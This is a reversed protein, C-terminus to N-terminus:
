EEVNAFDTLTSAEADQPPAVHEFLFMMQLLNQAVLDVAVERLFAHKLGPNQGEYLNTVEKAIEQLEASDLPKRSGESLIRTLIELREVEAKRTEAVKKAKEAELVATEANSRAADALAKTAESSNRKIISKASLAAVFAALTPASATVLAVVISGSRIDAIRPASLAKLELIGIALDNLKSARISEAIQDNDRAKIASDLDHLWPVVFRILLHNEDESAELQGGLLEDAFRRLEDVRVGLANDDFIAWVDSKKAEIYRILRNVAVYLLIQPDELVKLTWGVEDIATL